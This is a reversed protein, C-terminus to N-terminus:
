KLSNQFQIKLKNAFNKFIKKNDKWQFSVDGNTYYAMALFCFVITGIIIFVIALVFSVPTGLSDRMIDVESRELEM